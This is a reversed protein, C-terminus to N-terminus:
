RLTEANRTSFFSDEYTKRKMETIVIQSAKGSADEIRILSPRPAGEMMKYNEFYAKKLVTTGNSGLYEARLPRQTAKDIWLRLAPYTLNERQAKLFLRIDKGEIAELKAEYDGYWRTRAIDGNAVQGSLKQALSLRMTRKLNPVYVHFDRDLMLMNRGLDRAPAKTVIMTKDKGKLSVKFLSENGDADQVQIKMEFSEGPNRVEDAAKVLADASSLAEAITAFCLVLVLMSIIKQLM